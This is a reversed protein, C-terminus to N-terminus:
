KKAHMVDRLRCEREDVCRGAKDRERCGKVTFWTWGSPLVQRRKIDSAQGSFPPVSLHQLGGNERM